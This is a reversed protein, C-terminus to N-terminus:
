YYNSYKREPKRHYRGFFYIESSQDAIDLAKNIRETALEFDGRRMAYVGLNTWFAPESPYEEAVQNM